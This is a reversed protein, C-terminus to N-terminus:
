FSNREAQLFWFHLHVWTKEEKCKKMWNNPFAAWMLNLDYQSSFAFSQSVDILRLDKLFEEENVYADKKPDLGPIEDLNYEIDFLLQEVDGVGWFLDLIQVSSIEVVAHSSIYCGRAETYCEGLRWKEWKLVVWKWILLDKSPRGRWTWALTCECHASKTWPPPADGATETPITGACCM